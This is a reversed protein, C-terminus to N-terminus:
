GRRTGHTPSDSELLAFLLHDQWQGAIRLYARALGERRFGTAELLRVSAGNHPLCAAEIRHLRLNGFAVSAQAVAGPGIGPRHVRSIM